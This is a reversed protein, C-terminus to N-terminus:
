WLRMTIESQLKEDEGAGVDCNHRSIRIIRLSLAARHEGDGTGDDHRLVHDATGHVLQYTQISQAAM